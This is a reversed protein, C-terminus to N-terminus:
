GAAPLILVARLGGLPSDELAIAGHYLEAIDRAIALGLGTGPVSEDLRTGRDFVATRQDAPDFLKNLLQGRGFSGIGLLVQAIRLEFVDIAHIAKLAKHGDINKEDPTNSVPRNINRNELHPKLAKATNDSIASFHWAPYDLPVVAVYQNIINETPRYHVMVISRDHVIALFKIEKDPGDFFLHGLTSAALGFRIDVSPFVEAKPKYFDSVLNFRDYMWQHTHGRKRADGLVFNEVFRRLPRQQSTGSAERRVSQLLMPEFMRDHEGIVREGEKECLGVHDLYNRCYREFDPVVVRILGGIRLVRACEQIFGPAVGRDLHELVHSHYVLDVSADPFPIGRSLDHVMLNDPLSRFRSLREGNLLLPVLARLMPNSRIRLLASM